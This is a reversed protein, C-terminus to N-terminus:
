RSLVKITQNLHPNTIYVGNVSGNVPALDLLKVLAPDTSNVSKRSSIQPTESMIVRHVRSHCEFVLFKVDESVPPTWIRTISHSYLSEILLCVKVM